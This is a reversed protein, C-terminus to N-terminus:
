AAWHSTTAPAAGRRESLQPEEYGQGCSGVRLPAGLLPPANLIMLKKLPNNAASTCHLRTTPMAPRKRARYRNITSFEHIAAAQTDTIGELSVTSTTSRGYDLQRRPRPHDAASPGAHL